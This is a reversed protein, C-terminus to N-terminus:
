ADGDARAESPQFWYVILADSAPDQFCTGFVGGRRSIEAKAAGLDNTKARKNCIRGDSLKVDMM